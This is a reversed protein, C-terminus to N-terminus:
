SVLQFQIPYSLIHHCAKIGKEDVTSIKIQQVTEFPALTFTESNMQMKNAPNKRTIQFETRTEYVKQCQKVLNNFHGKIFQVQFRSHLLKPSM